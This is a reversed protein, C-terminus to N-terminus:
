NCTTHPLPVFPIETTYHPSVSPLVLLWIRFHAVQTISPLEKWAETKGVTFIPECYQGQSHPFHPLGRLLYWEVCLGARQGAIHEGNEQEKMLKNRMFLWLTEQDSADLGFKEMGTGDGPALGQLRDKRAKEIQEQLLVSSRMRELEDVRAKLKRVEEASIAPPCSLGPDAWQRGLM